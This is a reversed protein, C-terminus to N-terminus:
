FIIGYARLRSFNGSLEYSSYVRIFRRVFYFSTIGVSTAGAREVGRLFGAGSRAEGESGAFGGGGRCVYEGRFSSFICSRYITCCLVCIAHGM